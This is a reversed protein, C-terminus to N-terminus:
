RGLFRSVKRIVKVEDRECEWLTMSRWGLVKLKKDNEKDRERNREIKQKWFKRRTKPLKGGRCVHGHWFCGNIFIVAKHKPLVIDPSGPLKRVHLRYRFGARHLARRVRLELKTDKGRIRGMIQSRKTKTFIDTMSARPHDRIEATSGSWHLM